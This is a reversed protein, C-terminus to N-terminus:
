CKNKLSKRKKQSVKIFVRYKPMLEKWSRYSNLIKRLLVTKLRLIERPKLSNLKSYIEKKLFSKMIPMLNESKNRPLESHLKYIM